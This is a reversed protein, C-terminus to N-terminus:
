FNLSSFRLMRPRRFFLFSPPLSLVRHAPIRGSLSGKEAEREVLHGGGRGHGGRCNPTRGGVWCGSAPGGGGACGLRPKGDGPGSPGTTPPPSERCSSKWKSGARAGGLLQPLSLCWFGGSFSTPTQAGLGPSAGWRVLPSGTYPETGVQRPAEERSARSGQGSTQDQPFGVQAHLPAAYLTDKKRGQELASGGRTATETKGSSNASRGQQEARGRPGPGTRGAGSEVGGQPGWGAERRM